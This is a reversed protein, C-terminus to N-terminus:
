QFSSLYRFVTESIPDSVIASFCMNVWVLKTVWKNGKLSSSKFYSMQADGDLDQLIQNAYM